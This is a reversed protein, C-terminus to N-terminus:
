GYFMAIQLFAGGFVICAVILSFIALILVAGAACDKARKALETYEPSVLDVVSELATNMVEAALVLAICGLVALWAVWDISLVFGLIVALLAFVVHIKMNRQSVFSYAIGSLAYKFAQLLGKM